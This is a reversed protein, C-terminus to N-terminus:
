YTSKGEEGEQQNHAGALWGYRIIRLEGDLEVATPTADVKFGRAIQGDEDLIMPAPDASAHIQRNPGRQRCAHESGICILYIHGEVRHWLAHIAAALEKYGSSSTDTPSVFLLIASHGEFEATGLMEATGLLPASFDPAVSGKPLGTLEVEQVSTSYLRNFWLTRRLAERLVLAELIVLGWLLAYSTAFM